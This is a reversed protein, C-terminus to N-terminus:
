IQFRIFRAVEIKEGFKTIKQEIIKEITLSDDKVFPQKLLCVEQYYKELKGAIIKERMNAPKGEAELQANYIEKEKAIIERPIDEPKVYLPNAGAVQMALDHVLDKFEPSKAVFDTECRVEVLVGMKGNSHLYTGILGEGASREAIKKAAKVAGKKRLYEIAKNVDGSSEDLAVKCDSLGAGTIERLQNITKVNIGM